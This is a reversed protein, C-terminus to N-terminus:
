SAPDPVQLAPPIQEPAALYRPLADAIRPATLLGKSGLATFAWCRAHDPLPGVIPLNSHPAYVRVGVQVDLVCATDVGPLMQATKQQIYQTADNSPSLDDFDHQYSSGLVLTDGNPVIYGRGSMPLLPGLGDPRRVRLTQGKVGYLGLGTLADFAPFGQGVALLLHGATITVPAGDASETHVRIANGTEEWGTVCVGTDVTANRDRAADLMAEVLAPVDVAGGRPIHLAGGATRVDPFRERVVDAPLWTAFEPHRDVADQFFSVQKDEVTPRLVGGPRFLSDAEATELVAEFAGLAEDIQWVAKAKRGMLPNVLGAAAGSAGAAPRDAEVIHVSRDAALALAACAGAIGAGAIVVDVDPM